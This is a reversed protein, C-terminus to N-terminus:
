GTLKPNATEDPTLKSKMNVVKKKRIPDIVMLDAPQTIFSIQSLFISIWTSLVFVLGRAEPSILKDSAKMLKIKRKNKLKKIKTCSLKSLIIKPIIISGKTIKYGRALLFKKRGWSISPRMNLQPTNIPHDEVPNVTGKWIM